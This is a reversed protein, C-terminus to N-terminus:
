YGRIEREVDAITRKAPRGDQQMPEDQNNIANNLKEKKSQNYATINRQTENLFLSFETSFCVKFLADIDPSRIKSFNAIADSSLTHNMVNCLCSIKPLYKTLYITNGTLPAKIDPGSFVTTRCGGRVGNNLHRHIMFFSPIAPVKRGPDSQTPPHIIHKDSFSLMNFGRPTIKLRGVFQRIYSGNSNLSRYNAQETIAQVISAKAGDNNAIKPPIECQKIFSMWSPPVVISHILKSNVKKMCTLFMGKLYTDKYSQFESMVKFDNKAIESLFHCNDINFNENNRLSRNREDEVCMPCIMMMESNKNVEFMYVMDKYLEIIRDFSEKTIQNTLPDYDPELASLLKPWTDITKNNSLSNFTPTSITTQCGKYLSACTSLISMTDDSSALIKDIESEYVVPIIETSATELDVTIQFTTAAAM